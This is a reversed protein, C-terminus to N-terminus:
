KEHALVLIYAVFHLHLVVREQFGLISWFQSLVGGRHLKRFKSHVDAKNFYAHRDAPTSQHASRGKRASYVYSHSGARAHGADLRPFVNEM